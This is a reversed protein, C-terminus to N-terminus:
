RDYVSIVRSPDAEYYSYGLLASFGKIFSSFDYDLQAKLIIKYLKNLGNADYKTYIETPFAEM